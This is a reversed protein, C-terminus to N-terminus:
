NDQNLYPLATRSLRRAVRHEEPWLPDDRHEGRHSHDSRVRSSVAEEAARITHQVSLKLYPAGSTGGTGAPVDALYNRAIGIHLTRWKRLEKDLASASDHLVQTTSSTSPDIKAMLHALSTFSPHDYASLEELDSTGAILNITDPNAGLLAIQMLQYTRSQVASADGTADRFRRFHEPPMTKLMQFLPTLLGAFPLAVPLCRVATRLDGRKICEVTALASTLVGWFCCESIHITRLFLYEDHETTQPFATLRVLAYDMGAPSVYQSWSQPDDVILHPAALDNRSLATYLPRLQQVRERCIASDFSDANRSELGALSNVEFLFLDNLLIRIAAACREWIRQYPTRHVTDLYWNLVSVNTYTRYRPKPVRAAFWEPYLFREALELVDDLNRPIYSELRRLRVIEDYLESAEQRRSASLHARGEAWLAAVYDDLEFDLLRSAIDSDSSM